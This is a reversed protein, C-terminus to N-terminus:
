KFCIIKLKFIAIKILVVFHSIISYSSTWKFFKIADLLIFSRIIIRYKIRHTRKDWNNRFMKSTSSVSLPQHEGSKSQVSVLKAHKWCQTSTLYSISPQVQASILKGDDHNSSKKQFIFLKEDYRIRRINAKFFSAVLTLYYSCNKKVPIERRKKNWSIIM